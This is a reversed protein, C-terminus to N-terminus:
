SGMLPIFHWILKVISLGIKFAEEAIIVKLIGTVTDMPIFYAAMDVYNLFTDFTQITAGMDLTPLGDILISAFSLFMNLLTEVIM